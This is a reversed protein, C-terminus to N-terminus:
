DILENVRELIEATCNMADVAIQKDLEDHPIIRYDIPDPDYLKRCTADNVFGHLRRSLTQLQIDDISSALIVIDHSFSPVADICLQAAKLAKKASQLCDSYCRDNASEV